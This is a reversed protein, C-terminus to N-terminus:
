SHRVRQLRMPQLRGPEETWPIMGVLFNSHAAMEEELPDEWSWHDFWRNSCQYPSKKKKKKVVSGGPFDLLTIYMAIYLPYENNLWLILSVKCKYVLYTLSVTNQFLTHDTKHPIEFFFFFFFFGFM